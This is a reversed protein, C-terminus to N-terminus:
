EGAENRSIIPTLDEVPYFTSGSFFLNFLSHRNWKRKRLGTEESFINDRSKLHSLM